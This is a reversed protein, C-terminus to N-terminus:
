YGREFQQGVEGMTDEELQKQSLVREWDATRVEGRANSNLLKYYGSRFEDWFLFVRNAYDNPLLNYRWIQYPLYHIQGQNALESAGIRYSQSSGESGVRERTDDTHIHLAGVFNKEDRVYDPPGYQLYVRGRDTMYGPTRPYSYVEDVYTLRTLYDDWKGEPDLMDRNMWFRYFFTQKEALNSGDRLMQDISANEDPSAVPYLARLYYDLKDEDTILGAFSTAVHDETLANDVVGPNSRYFSMSRKILTEGAMNRVEAVLNYNGSPLLSIDITSYIAESNKPAPRNMLKDCSAARIGKEKTEVGFYVYYPKDGIEKDLNYVEIYPHLETVSAPMFDSIYPVMDYGNRSLMNDHETPVASAMLQINSMTPKANEFFVVMKDRFIVPEEVAKDRLTLELDYIGNALAFRQLDFFTFNDSEPSSTYPSHLDYKKVYAVTDGKRVVLTVEVTARYQGSEDQVLNLTWANFNLYTEVYPRNSEPLYFASYGFMASIKKDSAFSATALVLAM